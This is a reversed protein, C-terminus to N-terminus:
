AADAVDEGLCFFCLKNEDLDRVYGAYFNQTGGLAGRPGPAGDCRGGLALARAHFADVRASSRQGLAIMQGNGPHARQGDHPRAVGFIPEDWSRGWAALHPLVMLPPIGATEFLADYFAIARPLDNTGVTIYGIM